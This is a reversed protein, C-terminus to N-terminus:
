IERRNELARSLTLEDAFELDGGVPMGFGIRTVKIGCPHILRALYNATAEGEVTPNTAIIVEKIKETELRTLLEDLHLDEPGIGDLPSILNGLIHYRGRFVRAAEINLLDRPDEVVCLQGNQRSPNRCLVCLEHTTLNYCASCERIKEKAELLAEALAPALKERHKIIYFALRQATKQGISPLRNLERILRQLPNLNGNM